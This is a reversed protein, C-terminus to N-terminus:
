FTNIVRKSCSRLLEPLKFIILVESDNLDKHIWKEIEHNNPLVSRYHEVASLQRLKDCYRLISKLYTETLFLLRVWVLVWVLYWFDSIHQQSKLNRLVHCIAGHCLRYFRSGPTAHIQVELTYNRPSGIILFYFAGLFDRHHQWLDPSIRKLSLKTSLKAFISCREEKLDIASKWLLKLIIQKLIKQSITLFCM